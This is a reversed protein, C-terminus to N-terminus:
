LPRSERRMGSLPSEAKRKGKCNPNEQEYGPLSDDGMAKKKLVTSRQTEPKKVSHIVGANAWDVSPMGTAM